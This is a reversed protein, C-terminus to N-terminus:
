SNDSRCLEHWNGSRNILMIKDEITSLTFDGALMLNGTGDKCVVDRATAASEMVLIDGTAGGNITDLNDTAGGGETDVVLHSATATIVGGSITVNTAILRVWGVTVLGVAARVEGEVAGTTNGVELHDLRVGGDADTALVKAETDNYTDSDRELINDMFFPRLLGVMEANVTQLPM